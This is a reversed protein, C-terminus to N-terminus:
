TVAQGRKQLKASYRKAGKTVATRTVGMLKGVQTPKMGAKEVLFYYAAQRAPFSRGGKLIDEVSVGFSKAVTELVERCEEEPDLQGVLEEAKKPEPKSDKKIKALREDWYSKEFGCLELASRKYRASSKSDGGYLRLLEETKLWEFCSWDGAYDRYSSWPYNWPDSVLGARVPNLHIYLSLWSYHANDAVLIAKYRGQFLHGSLGHRLNFAVSYSTNIWQMAEPLNANPTRLLLHYHNSMLCFAMINLNFRECAKEFLKLMHRRDGDHFFIDQKRNGRCTVHYMADPFNIRRIRPM